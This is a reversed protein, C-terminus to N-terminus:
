IEVQKKWARTIMERENEMKQNLTVWEKLLSGPDNGRDQTARIKERVDRMRDRFGKERIALLCDLGFQSQNVTEDLRESLMESLSRALVPDEAFRDLLSQPQHFRGKLYDDYLREILMRNQKNRIQDPALHEFIPKSWKETDSILLLLLGREASDTTQARPTEPARGTDDKGRRHKRVQAILMSEDIGLKESVDKVTLNRQIPDRILAITRILIGAAEARQAPSTLRGSAKMQALRFDVFDLASAIRNKMESASRTRAYSDPDSGGPLPTIRVDLGAEVLVDVGRLAAQLGASDGDFVLTVERTYRALLGAQEKTLATGASAIANDLGCQHLRMVDTYGEVLLARDQRRIATKALDLGYFLRSKRYVLTEPSNIYKPAGPKEELARGGFGVVRGSPNLIPFMLRGRFRDYFGEREKRNVILGAKSLHEQRVSERRAKLILGDWRRPAYGIRFREITEPTFERGRLYDLAKQGAKTGYLCEKYFDCAFQNVHYLLETEKSADDKEQNLPLHIGLKEALSRVAEPFTVKEIQMIFNFVNGGAGCGFCHYFGRVPDVSFSPTKETHFPCLGMYSKGRKKLTVFQSVIEVIDATERVEEIKDEPIKM